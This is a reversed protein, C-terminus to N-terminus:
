AKIFSFSTKKLSILKLMKSAVTKVIEIYYVEFITTILQSM